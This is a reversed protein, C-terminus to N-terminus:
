SACAGWKQKLGRQDKGAGRITASEEAQKEQLGPEPIVYLDTPLSGAVELGKMQKCWEPPLTVLEDEAIPQIEEDSEQEALEMERLLRACSYQGLESKGLAENEDRSQFLSAWTASNTPHAGFHSSDLGKGDGQEHTKKELQDLDHDLEEEGIEDDFESDNNNNGGEDPGENGDVEGIGSEVKFHIVYMNKQMEYLRKRPIKSIDNCAVKVRIM